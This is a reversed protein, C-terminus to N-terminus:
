SPPKPFDITNQSADRVSRTVSDGLDFERTPHREPNVGEEAGVYSQRSSERHIGSSPLWAMFGDYLGRLRFRM